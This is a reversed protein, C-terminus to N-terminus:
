RKENAYVICNIGYKYDHIDTLKGGEIKHLIRRNTISNVIKSDLNKGHIAITKIELLYRTEPINM